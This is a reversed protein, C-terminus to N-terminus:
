FIGAPLVYTLDDDDNWKLTQKGHKYTNSPKKHIVTLFLRSSEQFFNGPNKNVKREKLNSRIVKNWIKRPWERPFSGSVKFNRYKSSWASKDVRKGHGSWQLRRAQASKRMNNLKSRLEEASIKDELWVNCIWRVM